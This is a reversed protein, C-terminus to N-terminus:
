PTGNAHEEAHGQNIKELMDPAKDMDEQIRLYARLEGRILDLNIDDSKIMRVNAEEARSALM